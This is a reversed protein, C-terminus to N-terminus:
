TTMQRAYATNRALWDVLAEHTVRHHTRMKIAYLATPDNRPTGDPQWRLCMQRVTERCVGLVRSVDGTSYAEQRELGAASLRRDLDDAVDNLGPEHM